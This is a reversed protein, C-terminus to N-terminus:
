RAHSRGPIFRQRWILLGAAALAGALSACLDAADFTGRLLYDALAAAGPWDAAGSGRLWDALSAAFLAHQGVEFATDVLGWFGCAGLQWGRAAPLLAASFLSFALAHVFSPLWDGVLDWLPASRAAGLLPLLQAQGVPRDTLYVVGGLALAALGM